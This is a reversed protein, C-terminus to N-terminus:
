TGGEVGVLDWRHEGLDITAPVAQTEGSYTLKLRLSRYLGLKHEPQAERLAAAIDGLEEVLAAIDTASMSAVGDNRAM